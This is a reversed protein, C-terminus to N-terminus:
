PTSSPKQEPSGKQKQANREAEQEALQRKIDKLEKRAEDPDRERPQAAQESVPDIVWDISIQFPAHIRITCISDIQIDLVKGVLSGVDRRDM